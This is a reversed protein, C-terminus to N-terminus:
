YYRDLPIDTAKVVEINDVSKGQLGISKVPQPIYQPVYPQTYGQYQETPKQNYYQNYNPYYNM